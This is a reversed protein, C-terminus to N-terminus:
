NGKAAQRRAVARHKLEDLLEYPVALDGTGRVLRIDPKYTGHYDSGGTVLLGHRRAMQAYFRREDESHRSYIAEVGDLGLTALEIIFQETADSPALKLQYPHALVAVGGAEHILAISAAPSLRAKEVYAEAGKGLFRDFADQISLAYGREVLLRAFHPRGVVDNGALREVEEYTIAYGLAQLREAIQPNRRERAERLEVLAANLSLSEPNIFYGLVHLTGPSYEASIEIGDIFEIGLAAAAARGEGLGAVTDHDTIAIAVAGAAQAEALLEDPTASGDSHVTHSHLDIIPESM